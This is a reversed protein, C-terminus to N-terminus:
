EVFIQVLGAVVEKPKMAISLLVMYKNLAAKSAGYNMAIAGPLPRGFPGALSTVSVVKKEKSHEVNPMFAKAVRMPGLTNVDFDIKDSTVSAAAM